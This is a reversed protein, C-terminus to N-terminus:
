DRRAPTRQKGAAKKRAKRSAEQPGRGEEKGNDNVTAPTAATLRAAVANAASRAGQLDSRAYVSTSTISRHGLYKGVASLAVGEQTAWSGATRRLDHIRVGPIKAGDRARAWANDCDSICAEPNGRRPFVFRSRSEKRRRTLIEVAPESLAFELPEGTKSTPVRWVAATLDLEHWQCHRLNSVRCGTLLLLRWFDPWPDSENADIWGLLAAAEDVSLYRARSAVTQKRFSRGTYPDILPHPKRWHDNVAAWRFLNSLVQQLRNAVVPRDHLSRLIKRVDQALKHLSKDGHTRKVHPNWLFRYSKLTNASTKKRGAIFAGTTCDELYKEFAQDATIGSSSVRRVPAAVSGDGAALKMAAKRADAVRMTLADGIRTEIKTDSGPRRSRRCWSAILKSVFL